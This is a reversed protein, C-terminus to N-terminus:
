GRPSRRGRSSLSLDSAPPGSVLPQQRATPRAWRSSRMRGRTPTPPRRSLCMCRRCAHDPPRVHGVPAQRLLPRPVDELGLGAPRGAYGCRVQAWGTLGPKVLGRREYYPVIHELTEVVAPPEPRPGVITMNGRLVNVLQPLENMHTARLFRGIRTVLEAEPVGRAMLEDADPRLTRFKLMEFERGQEGVRRQQYFVPGRDELKVLLAFLPLLPLGVLLGAPVAVALDLARKILPSTPTFRPHMICQFWASNISGIPVHGLVSEYFANAEVMRVRLDLCAKATEEFVQLRPSGPGVALLDVGHRQVIERIDDLSGLWRMEDEGDWEDVGHEDATIYGVLRFTRIRSAACSPTWAQDGARATRDSGAERSQRHQLPNRPLPCHHRHDARGDAAGLRRRAEAGVRPVRARARAGGGDRGRSGVAAATHKRDADPADAHRRAVSLPRRRGAHRPGDDGTRRGRAEAPDDRSGCHGSRHGYLVRQYLAQMRM